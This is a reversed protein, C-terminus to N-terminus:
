SGDSYMYRNLNYQLSGQYADVIAWIWVIFGTIFGIIFFTLFANMIQAGIFLVAKLGQGNYIQGLGPWLFSLVGAIGPSKAPNASALLQARGAAALERPPQPSAPSGPAVVPMPLMEGSERRNLRKSFEIAAVGKTFATADDPEFIVGEGGIVVRYGGDDLASFVVATASAEAVVHGGVKIVISAGTLDVSGETRATADQDEFRLFGTQEM